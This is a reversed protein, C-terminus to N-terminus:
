GSVTNQTYREICLCMHKREEVSQIIVLQTFSQPKGKVALGGVVLVHQKTSLSHSLSIGCALPIWIIVLIHSCCVSPVAPINCLGVITGTM